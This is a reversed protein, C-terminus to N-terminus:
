SNGHGGLGPPPVQTQLQRTLMLSLKTCCDRVSAELVADTPLQPNQTMTYVYSLYHEPGILAGRTIVVLAWVNAIGGVGPINQMTIDYDLVVLRGKYKDILPWAKELLYERVPVKDGFAM